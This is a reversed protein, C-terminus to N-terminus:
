CPRHLDITHFDERCSEIYGVPVAYIFYFFLTFTESRAIEQGDRKAKM